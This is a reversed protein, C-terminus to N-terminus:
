SAPEPRLWRTRRTLLLFAAGLMGVAIAAVIWRTWDIGGGSEAREPLGVSILTSRLEAGASYWGGHTQQGDWFAQGPKMYTVPLKAYPYVDQRLKFTENNPGPMTWVITYKPGLDGAPRRARTTDPTQGFVAPFFGAEQALDGLATGGSEGNGSIMIAKDLGPGEVSAQSAGKGQAAAPLLLAAAAVLLLGAKKM